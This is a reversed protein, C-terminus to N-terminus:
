LHQSHLTVTMLIIIIILITMRKTMTEMIMVKTATLMLTGDLRGTFTFPLYAVLTTSLSIKAM